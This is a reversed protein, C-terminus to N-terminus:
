SRVFGIPVGIFFNKGNLVITQRGIGGFYLFSHRGNAIVRAIYPCGVIAIVGQVIAAFIFPGSDSIFRGSQITALISFARFFSMVPFITTLFGITLQITTFVSRACFLTVMTIIAALLGVTLHIATFIALARLRPMISLAAATFLYDNVKLRFLIFFNIRKNSTPNTKTEAFACNEFAASWAVPRVQAIHLLAM